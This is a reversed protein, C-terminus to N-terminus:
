TVEWLSNNVKNLDWIVPEDKSYVRGTTWLSDLPSDYLTTFNRDFVVVYNM